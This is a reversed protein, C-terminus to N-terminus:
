LSRCLTLPVGKWVHWIPVHETEVAVTDAPQPMPYADYYTYHKVIVIIINYMFHEASREAAFSTM